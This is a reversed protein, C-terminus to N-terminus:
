RNVEASVNILKEPQNTKMNWWIEGFSGRSMGQREEHLQVPVRPTGKAILLNKGPDFVATPADISVQNAQMTANDATVKQLQLGQPTQGGVVDAVLKPARLEMRDGNQAQRVVAVDGDLVAQKKAPDYTLSKKWEMAITGNGAPGAPQTTASVDEYLMQGGAPVNMAGPSGDPNVDVTIRPVYLYTRRILKSADASNYLLSSLEVTENAPSLLTLSKVQKGAGALPTTAKQTAAATKVADAFTIDLTQGKAFNHSGDNGLTTVVVDGDIKASNSPGDFVMSKSWAVELPQGAKGDSNKQLGIMRGPGDITAATGAADARITNGSGSFTGDANTITAPTGTVTLWQQGAIQEVVLRDAKVSGSQSSSFNVRGTATMKEVATLDSPQTTATKAALTIDLDDTKLTQQPDQAVVDGRAHLTRLAINNGQGPATGLDLTSANITQVSGDDKTVAARVQGDARVTSITPEGGAADPAFGLALTDSNLKLQPHDVNVQGRFVARDVSRKGDANESMRITALETWTAHLPKAPQENTLMLDATSKGHLIADVGDSEISETVLTTGNADKLTVQPTTEDPTANFRDGELAAWIYAAVVTSGQRQLTVPKGIFKVIRDATSNLGSEAFRTPVVTLKGTWTIEVPGAPGTTPLSAAVRRAPQSSPQVVAHTTPQTAHARRAPRTTPETHGILSGDAQTSATRTTPQTAAHKDADFTFVATMQDASGVQADAEKIKVNDFFTTTYAFLERAPRTAALAAQSAAARRALLERRQRRREREEATMRPATEPDADTLEIPRGNDMLLPGASSFQGGFAKPNKIVLRKGHAVELYELRRDRQNYRIVLGQGDFDYDRGRVTVPVQDAPIEPADKVPLPVTNLRLTDNDFAIIPLTAVLIPTESEPTELLGLTVNRLIGHSPPQSQMSGLRDQRKATEAMTIDGDTASLTLVQGDKGYFRAEPNTVHVVNEVAPDLHDTRFESALEGTKKDFSQIWGKESAGVSNGSTNRTPTPLTTSGPTRRAVPVSSKQTLLFVVFATVLVALVGATILISRM